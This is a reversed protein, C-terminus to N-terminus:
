NQEVSRFTNVGLAGSIIPLIVQCCPESGPLAVSGAKLDLNDLNFTPTCFSWLLLLWLSHTPVRM